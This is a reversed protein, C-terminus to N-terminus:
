LACSVVLASAAVDPGSDFTSNVQKEVEGEDVKVTGFKKEGDPEESEKVRKDM